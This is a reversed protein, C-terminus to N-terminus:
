FICSNCFFRFCDNDWIQDEEKMKKKILKEEEGM